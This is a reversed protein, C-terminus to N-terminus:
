SFQAIILLEEGSLDDVIFEQDALPHIHRIQFPNSGIYYPRGEFAKKYFDGNLYSPHVKGWAHHFAEPHERRYPPSGNPCVAIFYGGKILLSEALRIMGKIDPHHEIVHSSFFIQNNGKLNSENTEIQVGLNKIGYGARSRSIECGQVLHGAQQFQYTMYGWSCGYDVIRLSKQDPYLQSFLNLFRKGNKNSNEFRSDKMQQLSAADPLDTTIKDKEKYETQYFSANEEKKDVPYRFYLHCNECEMLRTIYYKRDIEACQDSQCFPCQLKQGTAMLADLFYRLKQKRTLM